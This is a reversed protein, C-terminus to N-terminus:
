KRRDRGLFEIYFSPIFYVKQYTGRGLPTKVKVHFDDIGLDIPCTTRIKNLTMSINNIYCDAEKVDYSSTNTIKLESCLASLVILYTDGLNEVYELMKKNYKFLERLQYYSEDPDKIDYILDAM